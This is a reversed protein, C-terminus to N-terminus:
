VGAAFTDELNFGQKPKGVVRSRGPSSPGDPPSEPHKKSGSPRLHETSCQECEPLPLDGPSSPHIGLVSERGQLDGRESTPDVVLVLDVCSAGLFTSSRVPPQM